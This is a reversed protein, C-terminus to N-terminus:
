PVLLGYDEHEDARASPDAPVSIDTDVTRTFDTTLATAGSRLPGASASYSLSGETEDSLMSPSDNASQEDELSSNFVGADDDLSSMGENLAQQVRQEVAEQVSSVQLESIGDTILRKSHLHLKCLSQALVYRSAFQLRSQQWLM